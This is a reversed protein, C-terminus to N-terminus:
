ALGNLCHTNVLYRAAELEKKAGPSAVPTTATGTQSKDWRVLSMQPDLHVMATRLRSIHKVSQWSTIVMHYFPLRRHLLVVPVRVKGGEYAELEDTREHKEVACSLQICNAISSQAPEFGGPASPARGHSSTGARRHM